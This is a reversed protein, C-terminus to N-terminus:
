GVAVRAREQEQLWENRYGTWERLVDGYMYRRIEALIKDYDADIEADRLAGELASRDGPNTRLYFRAATEAKTKPTKKDELAKDLKDKTLLANQVLKVEDPELIKRADALEKKREDARKESSPKNRAAQQAAVEINIPTPAAGGGIIWGLVDSDERPYLKEAREEDSMTLYDVRRKWPIQNYLQGASRELLNGKLEEGYDGRGTIGQIAAQIVPTVSNMAGPHGPVNGTVTAYATQALEAPVGFPMITNLNTVDGAFPLDMGGVLPVGEPIEEPIQLLAQTYWPADGLDKENERHHLYGATAVLAAQFPHELPFRLSYRTSAKLFPYIFIVKSVIDREFPSLRGYDM